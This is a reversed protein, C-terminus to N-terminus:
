AEEKEKTEITSTDSKSVSWIADGSPPNAPLGISIAGYPVSEDITPGYQEFEADLLRTIRDKASQGSRAILYRRIKGKRGRKPKAWFLRRFVDMRIDAVTGGSMRVNKPSVPIGTARTYSRFLDTAGIRDYLDRWGLYPGNNWDTDDGAYSTFVKILISAEYKSETM